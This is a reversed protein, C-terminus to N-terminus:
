DPWALCAVAVCGAVLMLAADGAYGASPWPARALWLGMATIAGAAIYRSALLTFRRVAWVGIASVIGLAPSICLAAALAFWLLVLASVLSLTAGGFLSLRYPREGAFSFTLTGGHGAPIRFALQGADIRQPTLPENDLSAQLGPNFAHTTILLRDQDAPAFTAGRTYRPARYTVTLSADFLSKTASPTAVLSM